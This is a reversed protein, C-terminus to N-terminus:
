AKLWGSRPKFVARTRETCGPALKKAKRFRLTGMELIPVVHWIPDRQIFSLALLGPELAQGDPDLNM